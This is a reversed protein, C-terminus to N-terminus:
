CPQAVWCSACAPPGFPMVLPPVTSAPSLPPHVRSPPPNPQWTLARLLSNLPLLTPVLPRPTRHFPHSPPPPPPVCVRSAGAVFPREVAPVVAMTRQKLRPVKRVSDFWAIVADIPVGDSDSTVAVADLYVNELAIPTGELGAAM